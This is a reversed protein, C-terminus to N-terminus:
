LLCYSLPIPDRLLFPNCCKGHGECGKVRETSVGRGGRGRGSSM